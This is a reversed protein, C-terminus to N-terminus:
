NQSSCGVHFSNLFAEAGSLFFFFFVSKLVKVRTQVRRVHIFLLILVAVLMPFQVCVNGQKIYLWQHVYKTKILFFFSYSHLNSGLVQSLHFLAV